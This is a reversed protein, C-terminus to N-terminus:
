STCSARWRARGSRSARRGRWPSWAPWRAGPSAACPGGPPSRPSPRPGAAPCSSARWPSRRDGRPAEGPRRCSRARRDWSPPSSARRSPPCARPRGSPASSPRAPCSRAAGPSGRRREREQGVRLVLLRAPAVPHGLLVLAARLVQLAQVLDEEQPLLEGREVAQRAERVVRQAPLHHLLGLRDRLEEGVHLGRHRLDLLLLELLQARLLCPLRALREGLGRKAAPVHLVVLLPHAAGAVRDVLLLQALVERGVLGDGERQLERLGEVPDLEGLALDGGPVLVHAVEVHGVRLRAGEEGAEVQVEERALALVVVRRGERHAAHAEDGPARGQRHQDGVEVAHAQVLVLHLRQQVLEAVHQVAHERAGVVVGVGAGARRAVEDLRGDCINSSHPRRSCGRASRALTHGSHGRSVASSM